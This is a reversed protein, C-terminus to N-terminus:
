GAIVGACLKLSDSFGGDDLNWMKVSCDLSGSLGVGFKQDTIKEHLDSLM